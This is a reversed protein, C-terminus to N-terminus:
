ASAQVQEPEHLQWWSGADVETWETEVGASLLDAFELMTQPRHEPDKSLGSLIAQELGPPVPNETRQSPPVPEQQVHHLVMELPTEGPFVLEGTVLWYGVAALAYIDSRSDAAKAGLAMEPPFYAPTGTTVGEITLATQDAADEGFSKVLGFDLVKVWDPEGAFVGVHINGPKVDRHILGRTHAEHLSLAAQRLLYVARSAPQPGYRRVLDELDMGRLMEMVYFFTGDRTTGFDFLQVTHPSQLAATARAERTFRKAATAAKDSSGLLEPRIIKIAAPRALARHRARWVEGMGGEGLKGLLQYMGADTADAASRRYGHILHSGIVAFLAGVVLTLLSFSLLETRSIIGAAAEVGEPHTLHLLLGPVVGGVAIVGCALVAQPWRSPIFIAYALMLLLYVGPLRNGHALYYVYDGRDLADGLLLYTNLGIALLLAGFLVATLGHLTPMSLRARRLVLWCALAVIAGGASGPIGLTNFLAFRVVALGATVALLLALTRLRVHLLKRTEVALREAAGPNVGRRPCFLM